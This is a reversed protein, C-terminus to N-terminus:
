SRPRFYGLISASDRVAIQIHSKAKIASGKFAPKGEQFVGRVTQFRVGQEAEAFPIAWNTVACDRKRLVLGRGGDPLGENEPVTLGRAQMAALFKPYLQGLYNTFRVDLLDFCTSLHIIAGLVAPQRIRNPRRESIEKAWDLARDPGYEWFYISSGLWDYDNQSPTLRAQGLLVAEVTRRDCGHYAIITRQYDFWAM